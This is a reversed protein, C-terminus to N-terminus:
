HQATTSSACCAPHEQGDSWPAGETAIPVTRRGAPVRRVPDAARVRAVRGEARDVVHGQGLGPVASEAPLAGCAKARVVIAAKLM